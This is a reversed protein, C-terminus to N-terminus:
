SYKNSDASSGGGGGGGGDVDSSPLFAVRPILWLESLLGVRQPLLVVFCALSLRPDLYFGSKYKM